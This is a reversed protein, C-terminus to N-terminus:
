FDLPYPSRDEELSWFEPNQLLTRVARLHLSHGAKRARIDGLVLRGLLALDGLLDLIKHRVFEDPYRLPGNIIKEEDLVLANELSGGLALGQRWLQPVDKLFGFTRAPAIESIFNKVTVELSLEQIRIAPHPYEIFYAVRFGPYPHFAISAGNEEITLAKLVRIFKKKGEELSKVGAQLIAQVFPRASGDLITIENGDLEAELSDIGLVYLAALLHEITQIQGEESQLASSRRAFTKAPDLVIEASDLDLRRFIIAGSSSPKLRLNVTEGSHVGVGKLVAEKGITRQAIL